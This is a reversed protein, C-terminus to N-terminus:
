TGRKARTPLDRVHIGHRECYDAILMEHEVLHLDMTRQMKLLIRQVSWTSGIIAIIIAIQGLTIGEM